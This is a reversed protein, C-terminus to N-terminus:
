DRGAIATLAPATRKISPPRSSSRGPSRRSRRAGHVHVHEESEIVCPGAILALPSSGGFRIMPTVEIAVRFVPRERLLPGPWGASAISTRRASSRGSCRIRSSRSPNSSRISSAAWIGPITPSRASRSTPGTRRRARSGCGTGGDSDRRIRSQIRLSSPAARQDRASGYAQHAFSSGEAPLAVRGAAHHRGTRRRREVRAAQLDRPAAHRSRVRDFRRAGARVRQARVRDGDDADGPLHRFVAGQTERAYRIANIM